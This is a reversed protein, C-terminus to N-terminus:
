KKSKLEEVVNDIDLNNEDAYDRLVEWQDDNGWSTVRWSKYKDFFGADFFAKIVKKPDSVKSSLSEVMGKTDEETLKDLKSKIQLTTGYADIQAQVSKPARNRLAMAINESKETPYERQALSFMEQIDTSTYEIPKGEDNIDPINLQEVYENFTKPKTQAKQQVEGKSGPAKSFVMKKVQEATYVTEKPIWGDKSNETNADIAVVSGDPNVKKIIGTHGSAGAWTNWGFAFVGWETPNSVQGIKRIADVKSAYTDGMSGNTGTLMRVYDNVFEGCQLKEKWRVSQSYSIISDPTVPQWTHSVNVWNTIDFQRKDEEMKANDRELGIDFQRNDDQRNLEFQRKDEAFKMEQMKRDEEDKLYQLAIKNQDNISVQKNYESTTLSDLQANYMDQMSRLLTENETLSKQREQYTAVAVRPDIPKWTAPDVAKFIESQNSAKLRQIGQIQQTIGELQSYIGGPGTGIQDRIVQKDTTNTQLMAGALEQYTKGWYQQKMYEVQQNLADAPDGKATMPKEGFFKSGNGLKMYMKYDWTSPDYEKDFANTDPKGTIGAEKALNSKQEDTFLLKPM